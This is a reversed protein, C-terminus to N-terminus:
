FASKCLSKGELQESGWHSCSSFGLWKAAPLTRLKLVAHCSWLCPARRDLHALGHPKVSLLSETMPAGGRM